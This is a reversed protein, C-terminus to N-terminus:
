IAAQLGNAAPCVPGGQAVHTPALVPQEPVCLLAPPWFLWGGSACVM